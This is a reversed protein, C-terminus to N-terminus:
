RGYFSANIYFNIYDYNGNLYVTSVTKSLNYNAPLMYGYDRNTTSVSVAEAGVSVVSFSIIMVLLIAMTRKLIKM